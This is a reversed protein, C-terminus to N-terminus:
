FQQHSSNIKVLNIKKQLALELWRKPLSKQNRGISLWPGKWNYFRLALSFNLSKIAKELLMVDMAMQEPGSWDLTPFLYGKNSSKAKQINVKQM